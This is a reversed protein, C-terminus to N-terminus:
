ADPAAHEGPVDAPTNATAWTAVGAVAGSLLSAVANRVTVEGTAALLAIFPTLFAALTAATAKRATTLLYM